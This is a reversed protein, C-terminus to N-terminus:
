PGPPGGPGGADFPGGRAGPAELIRAPNAGFDPLDKGNVITKQMLGGPKGNKLPSIVVKVKDGPNLSRKTWGSRTLHVTSPGELVYVVDKGGERVKFELFAHPNKWEWKTVVGERTIEAELRNDFAVFSHHANAPAAVAFVASAVALSALLKNM